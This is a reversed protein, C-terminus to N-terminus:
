KNISHLALRLVSEPVTKSEKWTKSEQEFQTTLEQTFKINFIETIDTIRLVIMLAIIHAKNIQINKGNILDSITAQRLGTLLALNKQSIGREEMVKGLNSEITIGKVSNLIDIITDSTNKHLIQKISTKSM